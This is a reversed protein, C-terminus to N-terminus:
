EDEGYNSGGYGGYGYGGYGYGGYGYRSYYYDIKSVREENLILTANEVENVDILREIYDLSTKTTSRSNLVFVKVDVDRMLNLADTILSVPPTDMIIYEYHAEAYAFIEQLKPRLILESANPPTPGSTIVDLSSLDTKQIVDEVTAQGILVTSVGKTNNLEMAKALRPKHLDFDMLLVKKDAIALVSAINVSVFTKGEGPLLSTVLVRKSDSNPALYQLNTRLARFAQAVESRESGSLLRYTKSFDKQKPISGLVALDTSTQLQGLSTIKQFFFARMFILVAALLLGGFIATLHIKRKDPYVVGVSRAEEIVKTQPIFAAKAIVTEARKSLLFSYLEENVVLRREINLIQRQTKPINKINSEVEKIAIQLNAIGQVLAKSQADIYRLIDQKLVRIRELERNANVNKETVNELSKIYETRLNYLEQIRLSLDPDTNAVYVNPPILAEVSEDLLLYTTLDELASIQNEYERKKTDLETLRSFYTQEEHSLNLVSKVEKYDELETEIDYIISTVEDLQKDIYNLTNENIKIQNDLTSEVYIEALTSLVEEAREPIEDQLSIEVITTYDLNRISIAKQYKSILQDKRMVKFMYNVQRLSKLTMANLNGENTIRLYLGDDLILEGFRFEHEKTQGGINYSLKFRNTDLLTLNFDTESNVSSREDTHVKFPLHKYFETVKLRGVIFYSVELPLKKMVRSIMGSSQIVRMQSATEEYSSYSSSFGLGKYIQQQYDYTDNAKLLIQCKAAYIDALRHTYVYSAVGAVLPLALLLYWHSLVIAVIKM